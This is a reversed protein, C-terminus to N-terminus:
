TGGFFKVQAASARFGLVRLVEPSSDRHHSHWTLITLM